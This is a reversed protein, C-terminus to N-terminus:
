LTSRCKSIRSLGMFFLSSPKLRWALHSLKRPHDTSGLLPHHVNFNDGRNRNPRADCRSQLIKVCGLVSRYVLLHGIWLYNVGPPAYGRTTDLLTRVDGERPGCPKLKRKAVGQGLGTLSLATRIMLNGHILSKLFPKAGTSRNTFRTTLLVM